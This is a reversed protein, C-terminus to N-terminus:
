MDVDSEEGREEDRKILEAVELVREELGNETIYRQLVSIEAQHDEMLLDVEDPTWDPFRASLELLLPPQTAILPSLHFSKPMDLM